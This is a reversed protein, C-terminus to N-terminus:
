VCWISCCAVNSRDWICSTRAFSGNGGVDVTASGGPPNFFGASLWVVGTQCFDNLHQRLDTAGVCSFLALSHSHFHSHWIATRLVIQLERYHTVNVSLKDCRSASATIANLRMFAIASVISYFCCLM